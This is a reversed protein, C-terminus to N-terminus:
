RRNFVSGRATTQDTEALDGLAQHATHMAAALHGATAAAHHLTTRARHGPDDCQPHQDPYQGLQTLVQPLATTLEALATTITYLDGVSLPTIAPRTQHALDHVARTADQALTAPRHDM